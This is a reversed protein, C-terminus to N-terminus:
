SAASPMSSAGGDCAIALERLSRFFLLRPELDTGVRDRIEAVARMALLSHGGLDFFRDSTSVATVQLLREWVEAIARETPTSPPQFDHQGATLGGFPDPLQTRDVKGGPTQPIADVFAVLSPVMFDPVNTRLYRRVESTTCSENEQLEVWAVLRPDDAAAHRVDVVARRIRPHAALLSEIEGTEIRYGRLKVQGDARGLHELRGDERWRAIDGTRYMRAGAVFPDAIFREATLEPRKYYGKSVGEGGICLEGPLGTAVLQGAQDTVYARVNAIPIGITIPDGQKIEAMTAYVTTETPGYGNIVRGVRALLWEAVDMPMPEGASVACMERRGKWEADMLLRWGSPTAQFFTAESEDLLKALLRGNGSTERDAIVLTAGCVMPYLIDVVSIDFSLSSAVVAVDKATRGLREHMAVFLNALNAHAVSVGKPVGTSGSTYILYAADTASVTPLETTDNEIASAAKLSTQAEPVDILAIGLDLAAVKDRSTRSVLAVGAGSDQIMFRVREAPYSTDIPVYAAGARLVALMAVVKTTSKDTAVAVHVGPGANLRRLQRALRDVREALQRYTLEGDPGCVAVREGHAAVVEDMLLNVNKAGGHVIVPAGMSLLKDQEATSLLSITNLRASSERAMARLFVETHEVIRRITAPSYLDSRYEVSGSIKDPTHSVFWTCDYVAGGGEIAEGTGDGPHMVVATQFIPSMGLSREPNVIQVIREFPFEQNAHGNLLGDRAQTILDTVTADSRLRFRVAVPNVVPGVMADIGAVDRTGLPSGIVLDDQGTYKHLVGAVAALVVMYLSAQHTRGLEVIGKVVDADWTFSHTTGRGTAQMDRPMDTPFTSLQPARALLDTWYRAPASLEVATPLSRQWAAYDVYQIEPAKSTGEGAIYEQAIENQLIGLSWADLIIHHAVLIVSAEADGTLMVRFRVPPSKALDFPTHVAADLERRVRDSRSPADFTRLDEVVVSEPDFPDIVAKPEHRHAVYRTRLIEHRRVVRHVAEILREVDVATPPSAIGMNYATSAPDLRHLLWLREQFFSLPLSGDRPVATIQSPRKALPQENVLLAMLENKQERVRAALEDSMSGKPANVRLVGQEVRLQVDLARLERLLDTATM